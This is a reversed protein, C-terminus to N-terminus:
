VIGANNVLIDVRGFREFIRDFAVATAARDTIDVGVALIKTGEPDIEKAWGVDGTVDIIAIGAAGDELFRKAVACGIGRRAGTIVAYKDTFDFM